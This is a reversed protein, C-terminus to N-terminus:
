WVTFEHWTAIVFDHDGQPKVYVVIRYEGKGFASIPLTVEFDGNDRIAVNRSAYQTGKYETPLVAGKYFAVRMSSVGPARGSLSLYTPGEFVVDVRVPNLYVVRRVLGIIGVYRGVSDVSCSAVIHTYGTNRLEKVFAPNALFKDGIEDPSAAVCLFFAKNWDPVYHSLEVSLVSDLGGAAHEQLIEPIHREITCSLMLDESLGPLQRIGREKLMRASLINAESSLEVATIQTGLLTLPLLLVLGTFLSVLRADTVM